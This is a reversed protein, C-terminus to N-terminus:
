DLPNSILYNQLFPSLSFYKTGNEPQTELCFRRQLAQVANFFELTDLSSQSMLKAIPLAQNEIAIAKLVEQESKSLRELHEQIKANFNNGSVHSSYEIFQSVDGAFINQILIAMEQLQLPHGRWHDILTQWSKEDTLQKEQFLAIAAERSGQLELSRVLNKRGEWQELEEPKERGCLLLCSQHSHTAITEFFLCYQELRTTYSGTLRKSAFLHHFDDLILLYKRKQLLNIIISIKKTISYPSTARYAFTDLLDLLLESLSPRLRLNRYIIVDFHPKVQEALKLSLTTKGIGPFGLIAILRDREELIWNQLINLEKERGSCHFYDPVNNAGTSSSTDTNESTTEIERADSSINITIDGKYTEANFATNFDKNFDKNDKNFEKNFDKHHDIDFDEILSKFNSKKVEAGLIESFDSWLKAGIVRVYDISYKTRGAITDYECNELTGKIIEKQLDSLHKNKYQLFLRDTVEMVADINM